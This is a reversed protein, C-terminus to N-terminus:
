PEDPAAAAPLRLTVFLRFRPRFAEPDELVLEPSPLLDADDDTLAAAALAARMAAELAAVAAEECRVAVLLPPPMEVRVIAAL